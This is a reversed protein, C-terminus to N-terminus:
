TFIHRIYQQFLKYFYQKQKLIEEDTIKEKIENFIHQWLICSAAKNNNSM